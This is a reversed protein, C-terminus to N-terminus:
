RRESRDTALILVIDNLDHSLLTPGNSFQLSAVVDHINIVDTLFRVVIWDNDSILGRHRHSLTESHTNHTVLKHSCDLM